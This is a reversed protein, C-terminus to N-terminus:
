RNELPLLDLIKEAAIEMTRLASAMAQPGDDPDKGAQEVVITAYRRIQEILPSSLVPQFHEDTM